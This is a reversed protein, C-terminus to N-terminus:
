RVRPHTVEIMRAVGKAILAKANEQPLFAVDTKRFPGHTIEDMGVFSEVDELFRIMVKSSSDAAIESIDEDITSNEIPDVSLDTIPSIKETDLINEPDYYLNEIGLAEISRKLNSILRKEGWTLLKENITRNSLVLNTIKRLRLQALDKRLFEMRQNILEAIEPWDNDMSKNYLKSLRGDLSIYLDAPIEQLSPNEWEKKWIQYLERYNM